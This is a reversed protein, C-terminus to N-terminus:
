SKVGKFCSSKNPAIEYRFRVTHKKSGYGRAEVYELKTSAYYGAQNRWVVIDGVYPRRVRSSTDYLSADAIDSIDHADEALAVTGGSSRYAYISDSSGGGWTLVFRYDGEGIAFCGDNNSYDFEIVGSIAASAYRASSFSVAPEIRSSPEEFPNPGLAPRPRVRVGHIDRILDAYRLEYNTDARFDIYRRTSLFTPTPDNLSNDRIIPIIRDSSIDRMLSSTLIMREYGVGGQGLNAKEVYRATCVALVRNADSLGREMFLPLDGGLRLDWQDFVVDVGNKVLRGALNEVWFKHLDSDHSYSVFVKPAEFDSM